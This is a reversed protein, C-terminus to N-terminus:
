ASEEKGHVLETLSVHLLDSMLVLIKLRPYTLGNEWQYVAGQTVGLARALEAQTMGAKERAERIQDKM